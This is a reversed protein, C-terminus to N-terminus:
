KGLYRKPVRLAKWLNKQMHEIDTQERKCKEFLVIRKYVFKQEFKQQLMKNHMIKGRSIEKKHWFNYIRKFLNM